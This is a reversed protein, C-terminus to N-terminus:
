TASDIETECVCVSVYEMPGGTCDRGLILRIEEGCGLRDRAEAGTMRNKFEEQDLVEVGLNRAREFVTEVAYDLARGRNRFVKYCGYEGDYQGDYVDSWLM